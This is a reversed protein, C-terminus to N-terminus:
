KKDDGPCHYLSEDIGHDKLFAKIVDLPVSFGIIENSRHALVPVGVMRGMDNYVAGGSNGGVVGASIQTLPQKARDAEGVQLMGYAREVSSVIGKVVSSYLRGMPNGVVYVTDGRVPADCALVSAEKNPIPSIVQLLALDRDADVAIVKVKYTVTRVADGSQFDLQSVSGDRLRRVTEKTIVGKDDVKEIEVTEYQDAVCHNATLVYRDRLSILTGSCGSNVVFNTQDITRNMDKVAWDASAPGTSIWFALAAWLVRRM